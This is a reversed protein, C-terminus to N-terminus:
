GLFEENLEVGAFRCADRLGEDAIVQCFIDRGGNMLRADLYARAAKELVQARGFADDFSAGACVVGQQAWVVAKYRSLKEAVGQAGEVSAPLSWALAGVGEPVTEVCGGLSKWLIRTFTRDELPLVMTLAILAPTHAHYVVRTASSVGTGGAECSARATLAALHLPLEETACGEDALGWVVRYSDGADNMEIIGVCHALDSSVNHLNAGGRTVLLFAGALGPQALGVPLWQGAQKPVVPLVANVEEDDLLYSVSGSTHEHWGQIYGDDCLRVMDDLVPVADLLDWMTVDEDAGTLQDGDGQSASDHSHLCHEQECGCAHDEVHERVHAHGHDCQCSDALSKGSDVVQSAPALGRDQESRLQSKKKAKGAKSKDKKGM